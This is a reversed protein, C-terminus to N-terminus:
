SLTVRTAEASAPRTAAISATPVDADLPARMPEGRAEAVPPPPRWSGKALAAFTRALEEVTQFRLAPDRELAREFFGDLEVPLGPAVESIRPVRGMSLLMLHEGLTRGQFPLKGCLARYMVLGLSWLDTRHDLLSRGDLQEPSMYWLTGLLKGSTSIGPRGLEKVIGLDLLKIREEEDQSSVFLNAPKIDRHVLRIAHAKRLACAIQPLFAAVEQVTLTGRRLLRAELDEGHLLEMVIYPTGADVGFDMIRVVHDTESGLRAAARAERAFRERAVRDSAYTDSMLKLAVPRELDLDLAQWITGMGGASIRRETWYRGAVLRPIVSDRTM